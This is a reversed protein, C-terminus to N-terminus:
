RYVRWAAYSGEPRRPTGAVRFAGTPRDATRRPRRGGPTQFVVRFVHTWAPHRESDPGLASSSRGCGTRRVGPHTLRSPVAPTPTAWPAYIAAGAVTEIGTMVAGGVMAGTATGKAWAECAATDVRVEESTQSQPPYAPVQRSLPVCGSLLLGLAALAM